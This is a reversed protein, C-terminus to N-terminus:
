RDLVFAIPVLVWAAVPHGAQRAPVFKWRRVAELAASDLRPHGSSERMEVKDPAGDVSVLVRMLVRGQEGLRRSATPYAPADNRLYAANFSPPTVPAPPAPPAPPQPVEVVDVPTPQAVPAVFPAPATSPAATILPPPEITKPPDPRAKPQPRPPSPAPPPTEIKPPTILDVMIPALSTLATRAPEYQLLLAIAAVHAGIALALGIWRGGAPEVRDRRVVRTVPVPRSRRDDLTRDVHLSAAPTRPLASGPTLSLEKPPPELHGAAPLRRAASKMSM